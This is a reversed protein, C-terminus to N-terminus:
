THDSLPRHLRPRRAAPRHGRDGTRRHGPRRVRQPRPRQQGPGLVGTVCSRHTPSAARRAHGHVPDVRGRRLRPRAQGFAAASADDLAARAVPRVGARELWRRAEPAHSRSEPALPRIPSCGTPSHRRAGDHLRRDAAPPVVAAVLDVPRLVNGARGTPPLATPAPSASPRDGPGASCSSPRTRRWRSGRSWPFDGVGGAEAPFEARSRPARAARDDPIEAHCEPVLVEGTTPTRSVTSCSAFSASRRPCSAARRAATCAKTSSRSPSPSASASRAALHHGLAARLRHVRRRSLGGPGANRHPRRASRSPGASRGLREGRQGRHARRRPRPSWGGGPGSRHGRDLRPPTATTPVAAVTSGTTRSWPAGVARPGRALGVDGAAQRPPRLLPHHPRRTWRQVGPDGHAAGALSRARMASSRLGAVQRSARARHDPRRGPRPPRARGVRVPPQVSVCPIRSPPRAVPM